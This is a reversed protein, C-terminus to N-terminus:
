DNVENKDYGRFETKFDKELIDKTTFIISAM